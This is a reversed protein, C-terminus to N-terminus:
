DDKSLDAPKAPIDIAGGEGQSLDRGRDETAGSDEVITDHIERAKGIHPKRDGRPPGAGARNRSTQRSTTRSM